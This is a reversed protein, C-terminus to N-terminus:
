KDLSMVCFSGDELYTKHNPSNWNIVINVRAKLFLLRGNWRAIVIPGLVGVMTFAINNNVERGSWTMGLSQTSTGNVSTRSTIPLRLPLNTRSKGPSSARESEEESCVCIRRPNHRRITM